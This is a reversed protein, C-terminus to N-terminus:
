LASPSDNIVRRRKLLQYDVVRAVPVFGHRLYREMPGASRRSEAIAWAQSGPADELLCLGDVATVANAATDHALVHAGAALV